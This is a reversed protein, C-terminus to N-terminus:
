VGKFNTDTGMLKSENLFQNKYLDFIADYETMKKV